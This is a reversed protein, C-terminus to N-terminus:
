IDINKVPQPLRNPSPNPIPQTPFFTPRPPNINAPAQSSSPNTPAPLLQHLPPPPVTPQQYMNPNYAQQYTQM